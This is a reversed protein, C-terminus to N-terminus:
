AERFSVDDWRISTGINTEIGHHTGTLMTTTARIQASGNIRVVVSAGSLEVEIIDGTTALVTSYGLNTRSGNLVDSLEYRNNGAGVRTNLALHTNANSGVRLALGGINDGANALKAKLIGDVLGADWIVLGHAAVGSRSAYLTNNEIGATVTSGATLVKSPRGEGSTVGVSNSNPRNFNDSFGYVPADPLGAVTFNTDLIFIPM